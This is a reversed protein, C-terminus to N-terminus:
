WRVFWELVGGLILGAALGAAGAAALVRRTRRREHAQIKRRPVYPDPVEPDPFPGFLLVPRGALPALKASSAAPDRGPNGAEIADLAVALDSPMPLRAPPGYAIIRELDAEAPERPEAFPLLARALDEVTPIRDDVFKELCRSVVAELGDPIDPRRERMPAPRTTMVAARVTEVTTGEFPLSGTLMEYLLVGLSWIDTTHDVHRTSLLQEPSMYQPSGFVDTARTLSPENSDKGNRAGIASKSIGFDLVKVLAFGSAGTTVFLNAPKLDRHVVGISHAEAIAECAQVVYSAATGFPLPGWSDFLDALTSGQLYDMVLFPTGDDLHGDGLLRPVHVSTMLALIRRERRFRAVLDAVGKAQDLLIKIAVPRSEALDWAAHVTSMGGVAIMRDIRWRADLITRDPLPGSM